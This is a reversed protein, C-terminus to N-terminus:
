HQLSTADTWLNLTHMYSLRLFCRKSWQNTEQLTPFGLEITCFHYWIQPRQFFCGIRIIYVSSLKLLLYLSSNEVSLFQHCFMFKDLLINTKDHCLKALAFWGLTRWSSLVRHKGTPNCDLIFFTNISFILYQRTIDTKLTFFM